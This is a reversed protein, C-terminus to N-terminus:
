IRERDAGEDMQSFKLLSHMPQEAFKCTTNWLETQGFTYSALLLVTFVLLLRKM